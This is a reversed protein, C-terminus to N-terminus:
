ARKGRTKRRSTFFSHYVDQLKFYDDMDLDNIVDVDVGCLNAFLQVEHDGDTEGTKDAARQDRVKARRMTLEKIEENGKKVPYELTIKEM